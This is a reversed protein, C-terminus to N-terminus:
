FFSSRNKKHTDFMTGKTSFFGSSSTRKRKKKTKKRSKAKYGVKKKITKYGITEGLFGKVKKKTIVTNERHCNSCVVFCNKPNNNAPNNDKHDYETSRSHLENHCCMCRGKSRILADRKDASSFNKRLTRESKGFINPEHSWINQM